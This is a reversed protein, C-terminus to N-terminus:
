LMHLGEEGAEDAEECVCAVAGREDEAAAAVVCFRAHVDIGLKISEVTEV